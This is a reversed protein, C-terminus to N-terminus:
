IVFASVFSLYGTSGPKADSHNHLSALVVRLGDLWLDDEIDARMERVGQLRIRVPGALVSEPGLGRIATRLTDAIISDDIRRDERYASVLAFEINQLVDQHDRTMRRILKYSGKESKQHLTVTQINANRQQTRKQRQRKLKTRSSM